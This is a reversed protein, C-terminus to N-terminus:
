EIRKGKKDIFYYRNDKRVLASGSSFEHVQDYVLPIIEKGAKDVFGFKGNKTKIAMGEYFFGIYEKMSEPNIDSEFLINGKTDVYVSKGNYIAKAVGDFFNWVREFKLPIVMKKNEDIFGYKGNKGVTAFGERFNGIRYDLPLIIKGDRDVFGSRLEYLGDKEYAHFHINRNKDFYSVALDLYTPTSIRKKSILDYMYVRDNEGIALTNENLEKITKASMHTIATGAKDFIEFQGEKKAFIFHESSSINQYDFPLLAKGEPTFCGYRLDKEAIIVDKDYPLVQTYECKLIENGNLDIIGYFKRNHTLTFKNDQFYSIVSFKESIDKGYKTNYLWHKDNNRLKVVSDNVITIKEFDRSLLIKGAEDILGCKDPSEVTVNNDYYTVSGLYAKNCFIGKGYRFKDVFYISDEDKTTFIGYKKNYNGALKKQSFLLMPFLLILLFLQRNM